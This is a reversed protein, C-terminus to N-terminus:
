LSPRCQQYINLPWLRGFSRKMFAFLRATRSVYWRVSERVIVMPLGSFSTRALLCALYHCWVTRFTPFGYRIPTVLFLMDHITLLMLPVVLGFCFAHLALTFLSFFAVFLRLRPLLSSLSFLALLCLIVSKHVLGNPFDLLSCLFHLGGVGFRFKSM